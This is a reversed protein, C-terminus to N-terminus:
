SIEIYDFSYFKRSRLTGKIGLIYFSPQNPTLSLFTASSCYESMQWITRRSWKMRPVAQLLLSANRIQRKNHM